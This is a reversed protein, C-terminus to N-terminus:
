RFEKNFNITGAINQEVILGFFNPARDCSFSFQNRGKLLHNSSQDSKFYLMMLITERIAVEEKQGVKIVKLDAFLSYTSIRESKPRM